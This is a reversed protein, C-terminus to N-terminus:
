RGGCKTMLTACIEDFDENQPLMNAVLTFNGGNYHIDLFRQGCVSYKRLAIIESFPVTIEEPSWRRRPITISTDTLVVRQPIRIRVYALFGSLLVFCFSLAAFIMYFTAAGEPSFQIGYIDTPRKPHYAAVGLVITGVGFFLVGAIIVTWRPRYAYERRM